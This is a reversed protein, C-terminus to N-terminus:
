HKTLFGVILDAIVGITSHDEHHPSFMNVITPRNGGYMFNSNAQMEMDLKQQNLKRREQELSRKEYQREMELGGGRIFEVVRQLEDRDFWSGHNKCIDIVIGSCHAFNVRNMLKGCTPCPAYRVTEVNVSGARLSSNALVASQQERDACIQQFYEQDVWIGGCHSCESLLAAGVEVLSMEIRCRPCARSQMAAVDVRQAAAGCRACHKDGIFMM